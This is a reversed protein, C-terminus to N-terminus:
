KTSFKGGSTKCSAELDAPTQSNGAYFLDKGESMACVGIVNETPCPALAFKATSILMTCLKQLSETGLALNGDRYERCSQVSETHCSAVKGGEEKGGKSCGAIAIVFLLHKM